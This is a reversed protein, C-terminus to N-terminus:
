VVERGGLGALGPLWGALGARRGALGQLGALQRALLVSLLSMRKEIANRHFLVLRVRHNLVERPTGKCASSLEGKPTGRCLM